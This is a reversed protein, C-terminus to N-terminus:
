QSMNMLMRIVDPVVVFEKLMRTVVSKSVTLRQALMTELFNYSPRKEVIKGDQLEQQIDIRMTFFLSSRIEEALRSNGPNTKSVFLHGWGWTACLVKYATFLAVKIDFYTQAKEIGLILAKKVENHKTDAKSIRNLIRVKLESLTDFKLYEIKSEYIKCNQRFENMM